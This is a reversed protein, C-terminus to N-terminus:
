TSNISELFYKEEGLDPNFRSSILAELFNHRYEMFSSGLWGGILGGIMLLIGTVWINLELLNKPKFNTLVILGAVFLTALGGVFVGHWFFDKYLYSYIVAGSVTMVSGVFSINNIINSLHNNKLYLKNFIILTAYLLVAFVAHYVLTVRGLYNKAEEFSPNIIEAANIDPNYRSGPLHTPLGIISRLEVLPPSLFVFFGILFITITFSLIIHVRLNNM